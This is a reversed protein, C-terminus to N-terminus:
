SSDLVEQIKTYLDSFVFPKNLFNADLPLEEFYEKPYGSMFINTMESQQDKWKKYIKIPDTSPIIMDSIFLNITNNKFIEEAEQGNNAEFVNFGKEKLSKVIFSVISKNDELLLINKGRVYSSNKYKVEEKKDYAPLYISFVSGEGEISEVEIFGHKQKIISKIIALGFGTGGKSKTTFFPDFIKNLNEKSIGNGTDIVQIKIYSGRKIYEGNNIIDNNVYYNETKINISGKGSISDRANILLNILIQELYVEHIVIPLLNSCKNFKIEINESLIRGITALCESIVDNVDIVEEQPVNKRSINLIRVILNAARIANHKIQILHGYNKDTVNINSIVNDTFGLIATIINNFDHAISAITTGLSLLRQNHLYQIELDRTAINDVLTVQFINKSMKCIQINVKFNNEHNLKILFQDLRNDNKVQNIYNIFIDKSDESIYDLLTGDLQSTGIMKRIQDNSYLIKFDSDICVIPLPSNQLTSIMDASLVEEKIKYTFYEDNRNLKSIKFEKNNIKFYTDEGNFNFINKMLLNDQLFDEIVSSCFIIANSPDTIIYTNGTEKLIENIQDLFIKNEKKEEHISLLLKEEYYSVELYCNKGKFFINYINKKNQKNWIKELINVLKEEDKFEDYLDTWKYIKRKTLLYAVQNYHILNGNTDFFFIAAPIANICSIYKHLDIKRSELKKDYYIQISKFLAALIYFYKNCFIGLFLSIISLFHILKHDPSILLLKLNNYSLVLLLLM